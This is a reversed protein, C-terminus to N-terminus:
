SRNHFYSLQIDKLSYIGAKQKLLWQSLTMAGKAFVERSFARHEITFEEFEGLFRIKHEGFVGGGRSVNIGIENDKRAEKRSSVLVSENLVSQLTEGLFLATGSPSDKKNRHHCEEIEIDFGADKSLGAVALASKALMLIGLSTNPAFLISLSHISLKGWLNRQTISLGTCCILISMPHSIKLNKFRELLVHNGEASSFDIVLQADSLGKELESATTKDDSGGILAFSEKKLIEIKLLSGMRGSIGHIWVKTKM